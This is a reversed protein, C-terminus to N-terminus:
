FARCFDRSSSSFDSGSDCYYLRMESWSGQIMSAVQGVLFSPYHRPSKFSKPLQLDRSTKSVLYPSLRRSRKRKNLRNRKIWSTGRLEVKRLLLIKNEAKLDVRPIAVVSGLFRSSRTVIRLHNRRRVFQFKTGNCRGKQLDLKRMLILPCLPRLRLEKRLLQNFRSSDPLERQFWITM